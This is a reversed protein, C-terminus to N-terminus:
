YRLQKSVNSAIKCGKSCTLELPENSGNLDLFFSFLLWWLDRGVEGWNM